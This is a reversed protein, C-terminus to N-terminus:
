GIRIQGTLNLTTSGNKAITILVHGRGSSLDQFRGSVGAIDVRGTFLHGGAGNPCVQGEGVQTIADDPTEYLLGSITAAVCRHPSAAKGDDIAAFFAGSRIPTGKHTGEVIWGCPGPAGNFCFPLQDTVKGKGSAILLQKDRLPPLGGGEADAAAEVTPATFAAAAALAVLLTRRLRRKKRSPQQTSSARKISSIPM